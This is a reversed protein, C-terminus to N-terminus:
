IVKWPNGPERPMRLSAALTLVYEVAEAEGVPLDLEALDFFHEGAAAKLQSRGDPDLSPNHYIVVYGAAHLAAWINKLPDFTKEVLVAEFGENFLARELRRSLAPRASVLITAPYHGHRRHRELSAIPTDSTPNEQGNLTDASASLDEQIM